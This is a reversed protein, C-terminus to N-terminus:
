NLAIDFRYSVGLAYSQTDSPQAAEDDREVSRAAAYVNLNELLMYSAGVTYGLGEFPTNETHGVSAALRLRPSLGYWGSVFAYDRDEQGARLNLAEFSGGVGWNSAAYAAYGRVAELEGAAGVLGINSFNQVSGAARGSNLDLAQVGVTLGEAAWEAGLAYDGDEADGAGEDVFVAANVRVGHMPASVYAVQNNIFGSGVTDNTLASLGYGAGNIVGTAGSIGSVSTNYFPDLKQGSLKYATAQRGYSLTGYAGTVGGFFQRTLEGGATGNDNDALREYQAFASLGEGVTLARLGVYSNNNDIDGDAEVDAADSDFYGYSLRFDGYLGGEVEVAHAPLAFVAALAAALATKQM